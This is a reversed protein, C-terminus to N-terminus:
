SSIVNFVNKTICTINISRPSWSPSNLNTVSFPIKFRIVATVKSQQHSRTTLAIGIDSIQWIFWCFMNATNYIVSNSLQVALKFLGEQDGPIVFILRRQYIKFKGFKMTVLLSLWEQDSRVLTTYLPFYARDQNRPSNKLTVNETLLM